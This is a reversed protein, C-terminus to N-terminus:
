ITHNLRVILDYSHVIGLVLYQVRSLPEDSLLAISGSRQAVNNRFCPNVQGRYMVMETGLFVQQIGYHQAPASRTATDSAQRSSGLRKSVATTDKNSANGPPSSGANASAPMLVQCRPLCGPSSRRMTGRSNRTM